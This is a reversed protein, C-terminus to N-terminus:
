VDRDTWKHEDMEYTAPGNALVSVRESLASLISVKLAKSRTSLTKSGNWGVFKEGINTLGYYECREILLHGWVSMDGPCATAQWNKHGVIAQLNPLQPVLWVMLRAFGDIQEDLPQIDHGTRLDGTICVGYTDTNRSDHWSLTKARNTLYVDFPGDSESLRGCVAHYGIRSWSKTQTHYYHMANVTWARSGASHHVTVYKISDLSRNWNPFPWTASGNTSLQNIVDVPPEAVPWEPETEVADPELSLMRTGDGLTELTYKGTETSM